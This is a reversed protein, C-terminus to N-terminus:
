FDTKLKSEDTEGRLFLFSDKLDWIMRFSSIRIKLSIGFSFMYTARYM